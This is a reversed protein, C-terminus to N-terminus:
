FACKKMISSTGSSVNRFNPNGQQQETLWDHGVRRGWSSCCALSGQGLQRESNAWVWTWQTLSSMWGDWGRNDGEGGARLREWFWPRKWHTPEKCWTALTNSLNNALTNPDGRPNMLCESCKSTNDNIHLVHGDAKGPDASSQRMDLLQWM